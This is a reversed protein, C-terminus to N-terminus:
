THLLGSTLRPTRLHFFLQEFGRICVKFQVFRVPIIRVEEFSMYTALQASILTHAPFGQCFSFASAATPYSCASSIQSAGEEGPALRVGDTSKVV